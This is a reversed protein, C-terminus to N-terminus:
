AILKHKLNRLSDRADGYARVTSSGSLAEGFLAFVRSRGVSDLRKIDRASARYFSSILVFIVSLGVIPIAM